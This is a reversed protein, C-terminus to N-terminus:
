VVRLEAILAAPDDARVLAEGVLIADFGATRMRRAGDVSSVGSEGVTIARGVVQPAIREATGLDTVFTALDRNNVGVIRPGIELAREVEHETHTEVLVDLGVSLAADYLRALEDDTLIAVILLVADAGLVKTEYIQASDVVFDKRLLPIDVAERVAQLDAVSGAFFEPETLVSIAAAGGDVYVVAQEEPVLTEALVGASPSKRKIEAIIQFGPAALADAFGLAPDTSLAAARLDIRNQILPGIRRRTSAVIEELVALERGADM